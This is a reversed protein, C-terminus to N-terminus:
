FQIMMRIHCQIYMNKSISETKDLDEQGSVRSNTVNDKTHQKLFYLTM